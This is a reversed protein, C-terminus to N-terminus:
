ARSGERARAPSGPEPPLALLDEHGVVVSLRGSACAALRREAYTATHPGLAPRQERAAAVWGRLWSAILGAQDPGLRWPSPARHVSWGARAFAAAAVAPADPGLLRRGGTVRRQHDNFAAGLDADLPDPPDLAVRGTVSLCLLAPVGARVCAGAVAEAEEATLLDLLASATVLSTGALSEAPLRTVDGREPEATVRGTDETLAAVALPLLDPDRDHLIWHQPGPLRPALWRGMSGTGCGLDRVVLRGGPRPAAALRARLPALLGPARAEADARERLALWGPTFRPSSTM